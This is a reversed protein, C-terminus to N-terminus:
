LQLFSTIYMSIYYTVGPFLGGEALGLAIRVGILGPFNQTIGM